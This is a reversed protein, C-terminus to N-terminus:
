QHLAVVHCQDIGGDTTEKILRQLGSVDLSQEFYRAFYFFSELVTRNMSDRANLMEPCHDMVQELLAVSIFPYSNFAEFGSHFVTANDKSRWGIINELLPQGLPADLLREFLQPDNAFLLVSFFQRQQETLSSFYDVLFDSLPVALCSRELLKGLQRLGECRFSVGEEFDAVSGKCYKDLNVTLRQKFRDPYSIFLADPLKCWSFIDAFVKDVLQAPSESVNIEVIIEWFQFYDDNKNSLFMGPDDVLLKKFEANAILPTIHQSFRNVPVAPIGRMMNRVFKEVGYNGILRKEARKIFGYALLYDALQFVGPHCSELFAPYLHEIRSLFYKISWVNPQDSELCVKLIDNVHVLLDHIEPRYLPLELELINQVFHFLQLSLEPSMPQKLVCLENISEKFNVLETLQLKKTNDARQALRLLCGSPNANATINAVGQMSGATVTRQLLGVTAADNAWGSERPLAPNVDDRQVGSDNDTAGSVMASPNGPSFGSISHDM